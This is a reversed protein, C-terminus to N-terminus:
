ENVTSEEANEKQEVESAKDVEPKSRDANGQQEVVPSQNVESKPSSKKVFYAVGQVVGYYIVGAVFATGILRALCSDGEESHVIRGNKVKGFLTENSMRAGASLKWGIRIPLFPLLIINILIKMLLKM